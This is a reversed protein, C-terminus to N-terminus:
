DTSVRCSALQVWDLNPHGIDFRNAARPGPAGVGIGSHRVKLKRGIIRRDRGTRTSM